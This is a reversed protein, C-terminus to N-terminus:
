SEPVNAGCALLKYNINQTARKLSIQLNLPKKQHQSVLDLIRWFWKINLHWCKINVYRAREFYSVDFFWQKKEIFKSKVNRPCCDPGGYCSWHRTVSSGPHVLSCDCNSELISRPHGKRRPMPCHFSKNSNVGARGVTVPVTRIKSLGQQYQYFHFSFIFVEFVDDVYM